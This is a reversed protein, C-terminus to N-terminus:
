EAGQALLKEYYELLAATVVASSFDRAARERANEGMRRRLSADGTLTRMSQVLQQLNGAEFLLGTEGEVIADTIGYIRSGIAPVGAAAAEIITTGFGERYSPLCFVDAAAFYDQPRDTLGARHLRGACAAATRTITAGLNEEDPGVLLLHAYPYSAGTEGFAQALDLVGKDRNIRGLYLFVVAGSPIGHRHRVRERAATDPRFRATDVGCISGRALVASKSAAVIGQAILFERQSASDTLVQTALLAILRDASKLVNRMPGTRTVWVQGTFSHLRLRVGALAGALMALLGAKPTISHVLDFRQKRFLRLLALLALLDAWPAIPRAIPIAVRTIEKPWPFSEDEPAFGAVATVEAIRALAELHGLMFAKLTLPAAVVICIRPRSRRDANVRKRRSPIGPKAGM